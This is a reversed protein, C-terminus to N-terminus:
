VFSQRTSYKIANDLFNGLAVELLEAHAKIWSKESDFKEHIKISKETAIPQWRACLNRVIQVCEVAELAYQQHEYAALDLLTSTMRKMDRATQLVAACTKLMEEKPRDKALLVEMATLIGAVPTKLEHSANAIFLRQSERSEAIKEIMIKFTAFLKQEELSNPLLTFQWKPQEPNIRALSLTFQRLNYTSLSVTTVVAICAILCMIVTVFIVDQKISELEQMSTTVNIASFIDRLQTFEKKQFNKEFKRRTM